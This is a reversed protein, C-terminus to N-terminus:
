LLGATLIDHLLAGHTDTQQTYFTFGRLYYLIAICKYNSHVQSWKIM